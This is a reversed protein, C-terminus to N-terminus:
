EDWEVGISTGFAYLWEVFESAEGKTLDSTTKKAMVVFGEGTPDPLVEQGAWKGVLYYRWWTESRKPAGHKEMHKAIQRCLPHIIDNQPLTRKPRTLVMLVDGGPLTKQIVENAWNLARYVEGDNRITRTVQSM